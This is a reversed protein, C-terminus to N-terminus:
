SSFTKKIRAKLGLKNKYKYLWRIVCNSFNFSKMLNIQLTERRVGSPLKVPCVAHWSKKSPRFGFLKNPLPTVDKEPILKSSEFYSLTPRNEGAWKSEGDAVSFIQTGGETRNIDDSFGFYLLLATVKHSHDVHQFLGANDTYASLKFNVYCNSYLFFDFFGVKSNPPHIKLPRLSLPDTLTRPILLRYLSEQIKQSCFIDALKKLAGNEPAVTYIKDASDGTTGGGILLNLGQAFSREYRPAKLQQGFEIHDFSNFIKRVEKQASNFFDVDLCNEIVFHPFPDKATKTHDLNLM